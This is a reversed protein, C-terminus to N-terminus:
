KSSALRARESDVDVFAHLGQVAKKADSPFRLRGSTHDDVERSDPGHLLIALSSSKWIGAKKQKETAWITTVLFM